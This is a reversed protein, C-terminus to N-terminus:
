IVLVGLLMYLFIFVYIGYFYELKKLLNGTM